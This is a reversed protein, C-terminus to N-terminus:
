FNLKQSLEEPWEGTEYYSLGQEWEPWAQKVADLLWRGAVTLSQEHSVYLVWDMRDSTWFSEDGRVELLEVDLECDEPWGPLWWWGHLQYVRTVGGQALVRRIGRWGIHWFFVLEDFAQIDSGVRLREAPVLPYWNDEPSMGWTATLRKWLADIEDPSLYRRYPLPAVDIVPQRSLMQVYEQYETLEAVDIKRSTSSSSQRLVANPLALLYLLLDEDTAFSEPRVREIDDLVAPLLSVLADERRPEEDFWPQSEDYLHQLVIRHREEASADALSGIREICYLRAATHLAERRNVEPM